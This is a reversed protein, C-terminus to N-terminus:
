EGRTAELWAYVEAKLGDPAARWYPLSIERCVLSFTTDDDWDPPVGLWDLWEAMTAVLRKTGTIWADWAGGKIWDGNAESLGNAALPSLLSAPLPKASARGTPVLSSDEAYVRLGDATVMELYAAKAPNDVPRGDVDFWAAYVVRQGDPSAEDAM